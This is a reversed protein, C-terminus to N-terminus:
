TSEAMQMRLISFYDLVFLYVFDLYMLEIEPCMPKPRIQRRDLVHLHIRARGYELTSSHMFMCLDVCMNIKLQNKFTISAFHIALQTTNKANIINPFGCKIM